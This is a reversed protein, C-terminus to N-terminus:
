TTLLTVVARGVRHVEAHRPGAEATVLVGLDGVGVVFWKVRPRLGPRVWDRHESRGFGIIASTSHLGAHTSPRLLWHRM